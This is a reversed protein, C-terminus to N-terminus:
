PHQESAFAAKRKAVRDCEEKHGKWDAKQCEISCYNAERCRACCFMKSREAMNNLKSCSPNCCWGLKKVSKVDKYKEDLCACPIRKRYYAVLTHDDAKADILEVVKSWSLAAKTKCVFVAIWEEFHCALAAYLRAEDYDQGYLICQTGSCVLMSVVTELKSSYVDAFDEETHARAVLFWEMLNAKSDQSYLADLFANIFDQCIKEDRPSIFSMGHDCNTSTPHIIQLRQMLAELSGEQHTASASAAVVAETQSEKAKAAEKAAKRAKGKAKKRSPM